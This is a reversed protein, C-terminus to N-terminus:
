VGPHGNRLYQITGHGPDIWVDVMARVGEPACLGILALAMTWSHLMRRRPTRAAQHKM